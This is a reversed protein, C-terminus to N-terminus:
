HTSFQWDTQNTSGLGTAAHEIWSTFSGAGALVHVETRGSGTANMAVAYLDLQGDHDFDGMTYATQSDNTYGMPTAAHISFTHYGGRQMLEHVETRGSGTAHHVVGLLDGEANGVEFHWDASSLSAPLASAAHVVWGGYNSAESLVHVEVQNSATGNLAIAFLNSRRDGAVSGLAFVFQGPTVSSLPTAAHLAFAKYGSAASLVHVEVRGSATNRTHVGFLDAQGDGQFSAVFFQWEDSSVLGLASTSHVSFAGYHPQALAHVEVTGSSSHNLLVGYLDTSRVPPPPPAATTYLFDLTFMARSGSVAVGVGVQNYYPSLMNDRHPPDNMLWNNAQDASAVPDAASSSDINEGYRTWPIGLQTYLTNLHAGCPPIAHDLYGRDLMDQSRGRVTIGCVSIPLDRALSGVLPNVQLPGLGNAARDANLDDVMRREAAAVDFSAAQVPVSALLQGLPAAMVLGLGFAIKAGRVPLKSFM